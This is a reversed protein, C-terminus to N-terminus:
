SGGAALRVPVDGIVVPPRGGYLEVSLATARAAADRPPGGACGDPLVRPSLAAVAAGAPAGPQAGACAQYLSLASVSADAVGALYASLEARATSGLAPSCGTCRPTADGRQLDAAHRLEHVAVARTVWASLAGLADGLGPEAALRERAATAEAGDKGRLVVRRDGATRRLVEVHGPALARSAEERIAEGFVADLTSGDPDIEDALLPWVQNEAVVRTREALVLAGEDASTTIGLSAAVGALHDLRTLVRARLPRDGASAPITAVTRYTRVYLLQRRPSTRGSAEMRFPVGARDLYTNWAWVLYAFREARARSRPARLTAALADVLAALNPEGAVLARVEALRAGGAQPGVGDAADAMWRPLLDAHLRAHDIALLTERVVPARPVYTPRGRLDVEGRVWAGAREGVDAAAVLAAM